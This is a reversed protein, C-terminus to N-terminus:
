DYKIRYRQSTPVDCCHTGDCGDSGFVAAMMLEENKDADWPSPLCDLGDLCISGVTHLDLTELAM